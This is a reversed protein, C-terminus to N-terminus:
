AQGRRHERWTRLILPVLLVVIGVMTLMSYASARGIARNGATDPTLLDFTLWQLSIVHAQSAFGVIEDFVRYSDMLHILAVFVILPMLHPLVVARLRQWRSAGDVTAADMTDHNLGQLGAYFIMLAFPATHWVNFLIMLLELSWDHSLASVPHGLLHQLAATLIGDSDFLWRVSLAGIVPTIIFPLLPVFIVPGRLLSSVSDLALALGLGVGIVLPLTVLTFTLTFRLARYFDIQEFVGWGAGGPAFAAAVDGTRLLARYNDLGVFVTRTQPHGNADLAPLQKTETTCIPNPFGPTCSEIRAEHFLTSSNQFSQLLVSALPFAIFLAMLTLSPMVFALFVRPKM